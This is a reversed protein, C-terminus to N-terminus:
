MCVYMCDSADSVIVVGSRLHYKKKPPTLSYQPAAGLDWGVWGLGGSGQIATLQAEARTYLVKRRIIM